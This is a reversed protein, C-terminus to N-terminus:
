DLLSSRIENVENADDNKLAEELRKSENVLEYTKLSKTLTLAEDFSDDSSFHDNILDKSRFTEKNTYKRSYTVEKNIVKGTSLIKAKVHIVGNEDYMFSVNVREKGKEREPIDTVEIDCIHENQSAVSSEGQYVELLMSIQYDLVTHYSESYERGYPFNKHIIPDFVDEQGHENVKLGLTYPSVDYIKPGIGKHINAKQNADLSAGLAVSEDSHNNFIPDKGFYHKLKERVMPIQSSGGVLLVTDIDSPIFHNDSVVDKVISMTKNIHHQIIAEFEDRKVTRFFKVEQGGSTTFQMNISGSAKSSLSIKLKEVELYLRREGYDDLKCNRTVEIEQRFKQFLEQDIDAGGLQRDGGVARVTIGESTVDAISVDFTGGGFDYCLVTQQNVHNTYAYFLLAATPENIIKEVHFGAIKGAEMIEKRQGDSFEAPVTIIAKKVGEGLYVDANRKAKKLIIAAIEHPFLSEGAFNVKKESGIQRKIEKIGTGNVFAAINEKAEEGVLLKGRDKAVVSPTLKKGKHDLIVKPGEPTTFAVVTNTTGFDIGIIKEM